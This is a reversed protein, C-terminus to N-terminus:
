AVLEAHAERCAAHFEATTCESWDLLWLEDIKSRISAAVEDSVGLYEAIEQTVKM